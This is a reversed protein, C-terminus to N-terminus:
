EKPKPNQARQQDYFNVCSQWQGYADAYSGAKNVEDGAAVGEDIVQDGDVAAATPRPLSNAPAKHEGAPRAANAAASAARRVSAVDLPVVVGGGRRVAAARDALSGFTEDRKGKANIADQGAKDAAAKRAATDAEAARKQEAKYADCKVTAEKVGARHANWVSLKHSGYLGAIAALILLPGIFPALAGM